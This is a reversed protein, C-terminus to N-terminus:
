FIALFYSDSEEPQSHSEGLFYYVQNPNLDM